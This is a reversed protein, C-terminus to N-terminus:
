TQDPKGRKSRLHDSLVRYFVRKSIRFRRMVEDRNRGDFMRMAALNRETRDEVRPVYRAGLRQSMEEAILATLAAMKGPNIKIYDPQDRTIKVLIMEVDHRM